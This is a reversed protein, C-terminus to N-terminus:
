KVLESVLLVTGLVIFIGSTLTNLKKAPLRSVFKSGLFAALGHNLMQAVLASLFVLLPAGTVATLSLVALQTKDGMEAVFVLIFARWLSTRECSVGNLNDEEFYSLIGMIVFLFGSVMVIIQRPVLDIIVSGFLVVLAINAALALVAGTYVKKASGEAALCLTTLQTKDAMEALFVTGFVLILHEM